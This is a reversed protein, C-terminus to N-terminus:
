SSAKKAREIADELTVPDVAGRWIDVVRGQGDLVLTTPYAFGGKTLLHSIQTRSYEAPDCYIPFEPSNNKNLLQKTYFALQDKTDNTRDSCAISAFLVKPDDKYKTQVLIFRPYEKLCPQCWFGWFHLVVTKGKMDEPKIPAESFLLPQIDLEPLTQGIIRAKERGIFLLVCIGTVMFLAAFM